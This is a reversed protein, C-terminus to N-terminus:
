APVASGAGLPLRESHCTLMFRGFASVALRSSAM